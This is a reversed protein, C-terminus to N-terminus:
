EMREGRLYRHFILGLVDYNKRGKTKGDWFSTSFVGSLFAGGGVRVVIFRGGTGERYKGKGWENGAL